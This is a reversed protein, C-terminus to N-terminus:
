PVKGELRRELKEQLWLDGTVIGNASLMHDKPDESLTELEFNYVKQRAGLHLTELSSIPHYLEDPGLLKDTKKLEAGGVVVTKGEREVFFPHKSTVRVKDKGLGVEVLPLAEPGTLWRKVRQAKRRVPNWLLDGERVGYAPRDKGDAFRISTEGTVCGYQCGRNPEPYEKGDQGYGVAYWNCTPFDNYPYECTTTGDPNGYCFQPRCQGRVQAQCTSSGGKGKVTVTITQQQVYSWETYYGPGHGRPMGNLLVQKIAGGGTHNVVITNPGEPSGCTFYVSNGSASCLPPKPPVVRFSHKCTEVGGPGSITGNLTYDGEEMNAREPCITVEDGETNASAQAPLQPDRQFTGSTVWKRPSDPTRRYTFKVCDEMQLTRPGDIDCEIPPSLTLANSRLSVM